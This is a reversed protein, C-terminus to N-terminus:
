YGALTFRSTAELHQAGIKLLICGLFFGTGSCWASVILRVVFLSRDKAVITLIYFVPYTILCLVTLATIHSLSPQEFGRFHPKSRPPLEGADTRSSTPSPCVPDENVDTLLSPEVQILPSAPNETSHAPITVNATRVDEM